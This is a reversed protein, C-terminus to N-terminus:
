KPNLAKNNPITKHIIWLLQIKRQIQQYTLRKVLIRYWKTFVIMWMPAREVRYQRLRKAVVSRSVMDQLHNVKVQILEQMVVVLWQIRLIRIEEQLRNYFRKNRWWKSIQSLKRPRRCKKPLSTYTQIKKNYYNNLSPLLRKKLNEKKNTVNRKYRYNKKKLIM